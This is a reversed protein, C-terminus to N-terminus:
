HRGHDIIPEDRTRTGKRSEDTGKAAIRRLLLPPALREPSLTKPLTQKPRRPPAGISKM